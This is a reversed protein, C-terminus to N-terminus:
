GVIHPLESQSQLFNDSVFLKIRKPKTAVVGLFDRMPRICNFIFHTVINPYTLIYFIGAIQCITHPKTRTGFPWGAKCLLEFSEMGSIKRRVAVISKPKCTSIASSQANTIM